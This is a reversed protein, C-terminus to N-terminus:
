ALSRPGANILSDDVRPGSSWRLCCGNHFQAVWVYKTWIRPKVVFKRLAREIAQQHTMMHASSPGGTTGTCLAMLYNVFYKGDADVLLEAIQPAATGTEEYKELHQLVNSYASADLVVRPNLAGNSEEAYADLIAEGFIIEGDMYHQGIAIAGRVFFGNLVLHSQFAGVARVMALLEDEADGDIPVAFVINDSFTKVSISKGSAGEVVRLAAIAEDFAQRLRSLFADARHGSTAEQVSEVYGLIDLYAVM